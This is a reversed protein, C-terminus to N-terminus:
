RGDASASIMELIPGLFRGYKALTEQDNAALAAKVAKRTAPTV